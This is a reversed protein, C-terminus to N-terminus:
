PWAICTTWSHPPYEGLCWDTGSASTCAPRTFLMRTDDGLVISVLKDERWNLGTTETDVAVFYARDFSRVAERVETETTLKKFQM